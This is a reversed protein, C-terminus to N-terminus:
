PQELHVNDAKVSEKSDAPETVVADPGDFIRAMQELTHGCTEPYTLYIVITIVLILCAYFIYYKWGIKELAIPNVFINFFIASQTALNM